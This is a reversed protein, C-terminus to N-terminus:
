RADTSAPSSSPFPAGNFGRVARQDRFVTVWVGGVPARTVADIATVRISLEADGDAIYIADPSKLSEAVSALEKPSMEEHVVQIPHACGAVILAAIFLTSRATSPM